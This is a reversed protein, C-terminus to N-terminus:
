LQIPNRCSYRTRSRGEEEDDDLREKSSEKKYCSRIRDFSRWLFSIKNLSTRLKRLMQLRNTGYRLIIILVYILIIIFVTLIM